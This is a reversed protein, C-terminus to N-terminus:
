IIKAKVVLRIKDNNTCTILTLEKNGNTNQDLCSVDTENVEYSNYVIYEYQTGNIDYVYISDNVKLKKIESFFEKNNYNHGIISLNGIEGIEPGSLKTPAIKLYEESTKYIVPYSIEIDPIYIKGIILYEKGDANTIRKMKENTETNYDSYELNEENFVEEYDSYVEYYLEENYKPQKNIKYILILASIIIIILLICITIKTRREM